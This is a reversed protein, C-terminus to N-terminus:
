RRLYYTVGADTGVDLRGRHVLVDLHAKTELVALMQDGPHLANLPRQRRTWTLKAAVQSATRHDVDVASYSGALRQAHHELLEDTRIHVGSTVPGHAPLLMTDPYARVRRLSTLYDGLPLRPVVPEFGISPTIRPLVHDGAFLLGAGADRFVIHGHTHGPTEIVELRRAQVELHSSPVFWDDPEEWLDGRLGDETDENLRVLDAAGAERLMLLQAHLRHVGPTSVSLLSEREGLGLGVRTGFERRLTVAQTYHDRHIHTVLSRQVDEFRYGLVDLAARLQERALEIAQGPDILVPGGPDDLVYTNVARLGDDPLALPIRHVGEVVMYVGFDDWASDALGDPFVHPASSM